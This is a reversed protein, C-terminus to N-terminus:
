RAVVRENLERFFNQVVVLHSAEGSDGGGIQLMVFRQDDPAVDWSAYNPAGDLFREVMSFLVQREGVRFAGEAEVKASVMQGNGDIFFLENESHAWKPNIGGNTSIQWKGGQSGPFPRVYVEDRGTETSEYAVWRGSPSLAIGKEDYPEAAVPRPEQEDVRLSVIDRVGIAGSLGGLRLAFTSEDPTLRAELISADLDLLVEPTGTGDSPQVWLDYHSGATGARDSNYFIRRGDATWQPRRDIGPDFTLRSLPGRDLEKIWIDDGSDTSIKVALRRGDPSLVLAAEPMGPDFEWNPDIPTVDGRRDVWVARGLGSTADGAMYALTGDAAIQLDASGFGGVAIGDFLVVPDGTLELEEPDFPVALLLGDASVYVLHGTPSYRGYVGAVLVKREGSELDFAAVRYANADSQPSYGITALMARSGPLVDQWAHFVEATASDRATVSEGAGGTASVRMIFAGPQTDFYVFNDDGWALSNGGVASDAVTLPPEGAISVVRVVLPPGVMYAVRAGDPSFVPGYAGETGNIPTPDLRDRRRVWLSKSEAELRLYGARTIYPSQKPQPPRYRGM